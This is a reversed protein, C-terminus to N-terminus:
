LVGALSIWLITTEWCDTDKAQVARQACAPWLGHTGVANELDQIMDGHQVAVVGEYEAPFNDGILAGCIHRRIGLAGDSEVADLIEEVAKGVDGRRRAFICM